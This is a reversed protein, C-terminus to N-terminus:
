HHISSLSRMVAILGPGAAVILLAPLLTVVMVGTMRVTLKGIRERLTARRVERLRDGFQRLPEQVAGGHKDVQVLLRIVSRLDENDYTTAMRQLSQERTRGTVFQRQAIEMESALVPLVPRFENVLVQLSQDLSLGVGQLLRLLDVFMPLEDAVAALRASARRRLHFKPALFGALLGAAGFMAVSRGSMAAYSAAGIALGAACAFRAVIFLGRSRADVYGSQDLLRRDEDAVMLKGLPTDLWRAGANALADVIGPLGTRRPASEVRPKGGTAGASGAGGAGSAGGAGTAGGAGAGSASAAGPARLASVHGPAGPAAMTGMTGTSGMSGPASMANSAQLSAANRAESAATAAQASMNAIAQALTRASRRSALLRQCVLAALLALGFAGLLLALSGLGQASM